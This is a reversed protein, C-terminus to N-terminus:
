SIQGAINYIPLLVSVVLFGVGIGLVVILIPEILASLNRTIQDVENRYFRALDALIESIRGTEEGVKLMRAVMPPVEEYKFFTSHIDGGVKVDEAAELIIKKYTSNNVVEAIIQLARVIPIGGAVLVALNEAFRTLYVYQMLEGIVPIKLQARDWERAGEETRLYYIIGGITGIIGIIVVWWYSRMFDGFAMMMDTYWPTEVGMDRIVDSLKPLIVITMILGVIFAVAVVFSPYLLAGRVKSTLLYNQETTNTVYEIAGQLNGSVEGSRIMNVALDSFVKPHKAFADSIAAGDEIDAALERIIPRLVPNQTQEYITQLANAVPVKANVLTSFERYFVLVDKTKVRSTMEEVRQAFSFGESPNEVSIPILGNKHLLSVASEQNEAEITGRKLTGDSAKAKFRFKM